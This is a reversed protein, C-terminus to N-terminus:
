NPIHEKIRILSSKIQEDTSGKEMHSLRDKFDQLSAEKCNQIVMPCKLILKELWDIETKNSRDLIKSFGERVLKDAEEAMTSCDTILDNFFDLFTATNSRSEILDDRLRRKFTERQSAKLTQFLRKCDEASVSSPTNGALSDDVLHNLADSLPHGLDLTVGLDQLRFTLFILDSKNRISELWQDKSTRKIGSSLYTILLPDASHKLIDLYLPIDQISFDSDALQSLLQANTISSKLLGNWEEDSLSAKLIAYHKITTSPSFLQFAEPRMSLNKYIETLLGHPLSAELWKAVLENSLQLDVIQSTLTNLIDQRGSGSAIPRYINKGQNSINPNSSTAESDYLLIVLLCSTFTELNNEQHAQYLHHFIWGTRAISRLAERGEEQGVRFLARIDAGVEARSCNGQELRARVESALSGWNWSIGTEAMVTCAREHAVDFSGQRVSDLLANMVDAKDCPPKLYAAINSRDQLLGMANMLNVYEHGSEGLRFSGSVINKHNAALAADVIESVSEAWSQMETDTPQPKNAELPSNSRLLITKAFSSDGRRILAGLGRGALRDLGVWRQVQGAGLILRKWVEEWSSTDPIGAEDCAYSAKALVIPESKLWQPFRQDLTRVVILDIGPKNVLESLMKSDGTTLSREVKPGFLVQSAKEKPVGYFLVALDEQWDNHLFPQLKTLLHEPFPSNLNWESNKSLGAYLAAIPLSVTEPCTRMASGIQNIFVKLERPTPTGSDPQLIEFVRSVEYFDNDTHTPFAIKL